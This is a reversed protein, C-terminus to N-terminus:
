FSKACLKCTERKLLHTFSYYILLDRHVLIRKKMKPLVSKVIGFAPGSLIKKRVNAFCLATLLAGILLGLIGLWGFGFLVTGVISATLVAGAWYMLETGRIAM